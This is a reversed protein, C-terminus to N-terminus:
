QLAGSDLSGPVIGNDNYYLGGYVTYLSPCCAEAEKGQVSTFSFYGPYLGDHAESTM